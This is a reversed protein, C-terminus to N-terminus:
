FGRTFSFQCEWTYDQTHYQKSKKTKGINAALALFEVNNGDEAPGCFQPFSEETSSVNVTCNDNGYCPVGNNVLSSNLPELWSTFSTISKYDDKKGGLIVSVIHNDKLQTGINGSFVKPFFNLHDRDPHTVIISLKSTPYRDFYSTLLALIDKPKLGVKKNRSGMDVIVMDDNPCIIITCDGQGVALAYIFLKGHRPNAFVSFIDDHYENNSASLACQSTGNEIAGSCKSCCFKSGDAGNYCNECCKPKGNTDTCCTM